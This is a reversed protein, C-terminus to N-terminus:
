LQPRGTQGWFLPNHGQESIKNRSRAWKCSRMRVGVYTGTSIRQLDRQGRSMCAHMLTTGGPGPVLIDDIGPATHIVASIIKTIAPATASDCRTAVPRCHITWEKNNDDVRHEAVM